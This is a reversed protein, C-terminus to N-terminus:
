EPPETEDSLWKALTKPDVGLREATRTKNGEMQEYAWAAYRRQVERIPIITGDFIPPLRAPAASLIAAPLDARQIVASRGLLVLREILHALERVNGPWGHDMLAGLAETSCREVPSAPNKARSKALFHDVLLPIDERRHRLAPIELTVVDLRYFLDERFRGERVLEQLNRHTAAVVRVDVAREKTAGVARVSGSELVHLLKAQLPPAMEGIEDLLLTGGDAEAFLGASSSTAGTFAGKVHGFLESELLAEPLSACNVSVFAKAGRTSEAHLAHAVLGKGTGTEGVVLIPASSDKVREIVDYVSRMAASKGVINRLAFREALAARLARAESRVRQEDLARELFLVLEDLKFPKVLYHHAGQRISEIASEVEGYATMIIVPRTPNTRRSAALLALGDVDPMRLDTVLADVGEGALLALARQSSALATAGWGRDRLGDALTEAMDLKDDVVLVTPKERSPPSL